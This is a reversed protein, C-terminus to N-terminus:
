AASHQSKCRFLPLNTKLVISSVIRIRLLFVSSQLVFSASWSVQSRQLCFHQLHSTLRSSCWCSIHAHDRPRPIVPLKHINQELRLVTHPQHRANRLM